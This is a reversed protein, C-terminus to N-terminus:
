AAASRGGAADGPRSPILVTFVTGTGPVSEVEIGWGHADVLKRTIFLGLGLGEAARAASRARFYREFVRPLEDPPIRDRIPSASAAIWAPRRGQPAVRVIEGRVPEGRLARAFPRQEPPVPRGNPALLPLRRLAETCHDLDGAAFGLLGCAADNARAVEGQKGLIVLAVPLAALVAEVEAGHAAAAEAAQAAARSTRELERNVEELEARRSALGLAMSELARAVRRVEVPGRVKVAHPEGSALRAAHQELARLPEAIRRALLLAAALAGLVVALLAAGHVIAAQRVPAIADELPRSAHAAWGISPVPVTAGVRTEGTVPSRFIGLAPTGLLARRVWPINATNRRTPWDLTTKPQAQMVVTTGAADFIATAGRGSRQGVVTGLREADVAAAVIGALVGSSGRVGRAVVFLPRGDIVSRVLPSIRWDAGGRIEQFYDRAFLSKGELQPETSAVVVGTPDIFSMDRVAPLDAQVGALEAEIQARSHPERAVSIGVAHETRVLTQVFADFGAGVLNALEASARVEADRQDRYARLVEYVGVLVVPALAIAILALLAGRLAAPSALLPRRM